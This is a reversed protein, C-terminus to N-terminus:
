CGGIHLLWAGCCICGAALLFACNPLFIAFLMGAGFALLLIGCSRKKWNSPCHRKM